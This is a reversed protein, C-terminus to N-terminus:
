FKLFTSSNFKNTIFKQQQKASFTNLFFVPNEMEEYKTVKERNANLNTASSKMTEGSGNKASLVKFLKNYIVKNLEFTTYLNYKKNSQELLIIARDAETRNTSEELNKYLLISAKINGVISITFGKLCRFTRINRNNNKKPM